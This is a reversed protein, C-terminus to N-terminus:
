QTLYINKAIRIYGPIQWSLRIKTQQSTKNISVEQSEISEEGGKTLYSGELLEALRNSCFPCTECTEAEGRKTKLRKSSYRLPLPRTGRRSVKSKKKQSRISFQASEGM